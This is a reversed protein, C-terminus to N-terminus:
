NVEGVRFLFSKYKELIATTMPHNQSKYKSKLQTVNTEMVLDTYLQDRNDTGLEKDLALQEGRSIYFSKTHVLLTTGQVPIAQAFVSTLIVSLMLIKKM